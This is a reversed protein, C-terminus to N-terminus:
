SPLKAIVRNFLAMDHEFYPNLGEEEATTLVFKVRQLESENFRRHIPKGTDIAEEALYLIMRMTNLTYSVYMERQSQNVTPITNRFNHYLFAITHMGFEVEDPCGKPTCVAAYPDYNKTVFTKTFVFQSHLPYSVRRDYNDILPGIERPVALATFFYEGTRGPGGCCTNVLGPDFTWGMMFWALKIENAHDRASAPIDNLGPPFPAEEPFDFANEKFIRYHRGVAWVPNGLAGQQRINTQMTRELGTIPGSRRDKGGEIYEQRLLHTAFQTAKFRDKAGSAAASQIPQETFVRKDIKTGRPRNLLEFYDDDIRDYYALFNEETPNEIYADQLANWEELNEAKPLRPLSPLWENHSLGRHGITRDMSWYPFAIGLDIDRVDIALWEDRQTKAEALSLVPIDAFRYNGNRFQAGFAEDREYRNAGPLVEGSGPQFPRFTRADKPETIEYKERVFEILDAIAVQDEYSPLHPATRRIIDDRSFDFYALDFGDPSHCNACSAGAFIEDPKRWAAMGREFRDDVLPAEEGPTVEVPTEEVPEPTTTDPVRTPEVPATNEAEEVPLSYTSGGNAAKTDLPRGGSPLFLRHTTYVDQSAVILHSDAPITLSEDFYGKYAELRVTQDYDMSNRIRWVSAVPTGDVEYVGLSTLRLGTNKQGQDDGTFPSILPTGSLFDTTTPITSALAQSASVTIALMASLYALSKM